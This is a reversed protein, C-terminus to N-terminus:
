TVFGAGVSLVVSVLLQVSEFWCCYTAIREFAVQSIYARVTIKHLTRQQETPLMFPIPSYKPPSCSSVYPNACILQYSINQLKPTPFNCDHVGYGSIWYVRNIASWFFIPFDFFYVNWLNWFARWALVPRLMTFDLLGFAGMVQSM